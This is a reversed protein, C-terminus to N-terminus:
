ICKEAWGGVLGSFTGLIGAIATSIFAAAPALLMSVGMGYILRTLLDRGLADTGLVHAASPAATPVDRFQTAYSYHMFHQALVAALVMALLFGAAATRIPRSM